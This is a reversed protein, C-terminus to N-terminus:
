DKDLRESDRGLFDDLLLTLVLFDVVFVDFLHLSVQRFHRIDSRLHHLQSALQRVAKLVSGERHYTVVRDVKERLLKVLVILQSLVLKDICKAEEAVVDLVGLRM